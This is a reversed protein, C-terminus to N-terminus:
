SQTEALFGLSEFVHIPVTDFPTECPCGLRVLFRQFLQEKREIFDIRSSRAPFRAYSEIQVRGTLNKMFFLSRRSFFNRQIKGAKIQGAAIAWACDSAEEAEWDEGCVEDCVCDCGGCFSCDAASAAFFVSFSLALGFFTYVSSSKAPRRLLPTDTTPFSLGAAGPAAAVLLAFPFVFVPTTGMDPWSSSYQRPLARLRSCRIAAVSCRISAFFSSILFSPFPPKSMVVPIFSLM